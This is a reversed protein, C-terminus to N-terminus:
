ALALGQHLGGCDSMQTAGREVVFFIVQDLLEESGTKAHNTDAILGPYSMARGHGTQACGKSAATRGGCLLIETMGVGNEDHTRGHSLVVGDSKLPHDFGAFFTGLNDM